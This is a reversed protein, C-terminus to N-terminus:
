NPERAFKKEIFEKEKKNLKKGCKIKELVESGIADADLDKKCIELVYADADKWPKKGQKFIWGAERDPSWRNNEDLLISPIYPPKLYKSADHKIRKGDAGMEGIDFIWGKNTPYGALQRTIVWHWNIFKQIAYRRARQEVHMKTKAAFVEENEMRKIEFAKRGEYLDKFTSNKAMIMQTAIKWWLTKARINGTSKQGKVRGRAGDPDMMCYRRLSAPHPCKEALQGNEEIYYGAPDGGDHILEATLIPGVGKIYKYYRQYIETRNSYPKVLLVEANKELRIIDKLLDKVTDIKTLEDKTLKGSDRLEKEYKKLKEDSYKDMIKQHQEDTKKQEPKDYPIGEVKRRIIDRYRNMTTKRIDQMEQRFRIGMIGAGMVFSRKDFDKIKKEKKKMDKPKSETENMNIEGSQKKNRSEALSTTPV